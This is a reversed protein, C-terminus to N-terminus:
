LLLESADASSALRRIAGGKLSMLRWENLMEAGVSEYLRVAAANGGHVVWQFRGCGHAEAIQALRGMLAKAIGSKRFARDVFLDELYLGWRSGWTSYNFFYLAMGAAVGESEALIVFFRPNTGFGDAALDAETVALADAFGQESASERLMALIVPVDTALANRVTFV